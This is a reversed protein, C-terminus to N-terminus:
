EVKDGWLTTKLTYLLDINPNDWNPNDKEAYFLRQLYNKDKEYIEKFTQGKYIGFPMRKLLIPAITIKIMEKLIAEHNKTFLKNNKILFDFLFFFTFQLMKTDYWARHEQNQLGIRNSSNLIAPFIYKLGILRHNPIDPFIVQAVKKTCISNEDKIIIWYNAVIRKDFKVNHAVFIYKDDESMKKMKKCLSSEWFYPKDKIMEETIWSVMKAEINILKDTKFLETTEKYHNKGLEIISLEVIEADRELWTTETDFFVLIKDDSELQMDELKVNDDVSDNENKELRHITETSLWKNIKLGYAEQSLINLITHVKWKALVLNLMKILEHSQEFTWCTHLFNELEEFFVKEKWDLETWLEFTTFNM